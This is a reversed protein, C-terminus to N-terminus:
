SVFGGLLHTSRSLRTSRPTKRRDPLKGLVALCGGYLALGAVRIAWTLYIAQSQALLNSGLYLVIGILLAISFLGIEFPVPYVCRNVIYAIVALAAYAILTATAAGMAGYSPILVFNLVTNLLASSGISITLLWTKRTLSSGVTFVVNVGYFVMSLAVAPIVPAASQYGPPFFLDLVIVGFTSLGFAAFLLALSFWRFILQFIHAADDRKAISYMIVWWAMSFPTVMIASLTSGLSYGVAYSATQSLSGLIGLLYRDLLQLVWGAILNLTHPLGFALMGRAIDFRLRLGARLLVTPLTCVVVIAYGVGTALIAGDIGMQMTAVFFITAAASALLNILSVISFFVTRSEARLWFLGPLTLNQLLVVLAAVQITNALTPVDLLFAALSPAAVIIAIVAPCSALVLLVLFTSIVDLRDRRSEYDYGYARFFAANLGLQTVGAVLVIFTNLIALAGYDARSLHNTLFPALVLSILPSALSSLAYIGSSKILGRIQSAYSEVRAGQPSTRNKRGQRDQIGQRGQIGKDGVVPIIWTLEEYIPFNNLTTSSASQNNIIRNDMTQIVRNHARLEHLAVM